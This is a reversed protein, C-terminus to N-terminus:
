TSAAVNSTAVHCGACCYKIFHPRRECSCLTQWLQTISHAQHSCCAHVHEWAVEWDTSILHLAVFLVSRKGLYTNCWAGVMMMLTAWSLNMTMAKPWALPILLMMLTTMRLHMWGPSCLRCGAIVYVACNELGYGDRSQM